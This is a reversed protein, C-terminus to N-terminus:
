VGTAAGGSAAAKLYKIARRLTEPNDRFLGLAVNCRDCILGRVRGTRHCHDIARAPETRCLPCFLGSADVLAAYSEETLGYKRLRLKRHYARSKERAALKVEETRAKWAAIKALRRRSAEEAQM